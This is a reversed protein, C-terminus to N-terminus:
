NTKGARKFRFSRPSDSIKRKQHIQSNIQAYTKEKGYFLFPM